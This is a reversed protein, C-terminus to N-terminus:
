KGQGGGGDTARATRDVFNLLTRVASVMVIIGTSRVTDGPDRKRVLVVVRLGHEAAALACAAGAFRDRQALRRIPDKFLFVCLVHLHSSDFKPAGQEYFRERLGAPSM